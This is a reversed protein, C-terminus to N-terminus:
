VLMGDGGGGGLARWVIGGIDARRLSTAAAPAAAHAGGGAAHAGGGLTLADCSACVRRPVGRTTTTM